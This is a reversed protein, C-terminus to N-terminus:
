SREVPPEIRRDRPTGGGVVVRRDRRCREPVARGQARLELSASAQSSRPAGLFASHLGRTGDLRVSCVVEGRQTLLVGYFGDPFRQPPEDTEHRTQMSLVSQSGLYVGCQCHLARPRDKAVCLLPRPSIRMTTASPLRAVRYPTLAARLSSGSIAITPSASSPYAAMRSAWSRRGSTRTTSRESARIRPRSTIRSSAAARGWIRIRTNLLSVRRRASANRSPAAANTVLSERSSFSRLSIRRTVAGVCLLADM